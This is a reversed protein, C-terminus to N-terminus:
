EEGGVKEQVGEVKSPAAKQEVELACTGSVWAAQQGKPYPSDELVHCPVKVMREVM